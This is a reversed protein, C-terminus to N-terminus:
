LGLSQTKVFLKRLIGLLGKIRDATLVEYKDGLFIVLKDRRVFESLANEQDTKLSVIEVLREVEEKTLYRPAIKEKFVKFNLESNKYLHIGDKLFSYRLMAKMFLVLARHMEDLIKIMLRNDKLIAMSVYSMRDATRFHERAEILNDKWKNKDTVSSEM